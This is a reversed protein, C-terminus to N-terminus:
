DMATDDSFSICDGPTGPSLPCGPERKFRADNYPSTSHCVPLRAISGGRGSSVCPAGRTQGSFQPLFLPLLAVSSCLGCLARHPPLLICFHCPVLVPGHALLKPKSSSHCVRIFQFLLCITNYPGYLTLLFYIGM